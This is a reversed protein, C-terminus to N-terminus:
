NEKKPEQGRKPGPGNGFGIILHMDIGNEEAWAKIEEQHAQKQARREEESMSDFDPRNQQLEQKKAIITQKQEETLKGESVLQGLKEEQRAQMEQNKEQRAENFVQEVEYQNLSFREVLKQILADPHDKQQAKVQAALAASALVILALILVILKKVRM